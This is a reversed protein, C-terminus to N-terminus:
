DLKPIPSTTVRTGIKVPTFARTVTEKASEDYEYYGEVGKDDVMRVVYGEASDRRVTQIRLTQYNAPKDDLLVFETGKPVLWLQIDRNERRGGYITKIRHATIKFKTRLERSVIRNAQEALQKTNNSDSFSVIHGTTERDNKLANAFDELRLGWDCPENTGAEGYEVTGKTIAAIASQDFLTPVRVPEFKWHTIEPPAAGAPVIWFKFRMSSGDRERLHIIRVPDFKRFEVHRQLGNSYKLFRGPMKADASGVIYGKSGPMNALSALFGDMITRVAESCFADATENFLVAKPAEQSLGTQAAAILICGAIFCQM